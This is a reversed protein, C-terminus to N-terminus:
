AFNLNPVVLCFLSVFQRGEFLGRGYYRILAVGVSKKEGGGAGDGREEESNRVAAVGEHGPHSVGGKASAPM